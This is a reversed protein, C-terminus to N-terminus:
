GGRPARRSGIPLPVHMPADLRRGARWVGLTMGCVARLDRCLHPQDAFGAALALRAGDPENAALALARQVRQVAAWRSPSLGVAAMFWGHLARPTRGVRAAAAAM